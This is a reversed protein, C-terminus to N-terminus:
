EHNRLIQLALDEFEDALKSYKKRKVPDTENIYLSWYKEAIDDVKTYAEILYINKKTRNQLAKTYPNGPKVQDM